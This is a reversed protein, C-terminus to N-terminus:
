GTVSVTFLRLPVGYNRELQRAVRIGGLPFLNPLPHLGRGGLSQLVLFSCLERGLILCWKKEAFEILIFVWGYPHSSLFIVMMNLPGWLRFSNVWLCVYAESTYFIPRTEIERYFYYIRSHM